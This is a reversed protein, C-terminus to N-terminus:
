LMRAHEAAPLAYQQYGNLPIGQIILQGFTALKKQRASSKTKHFPIGSEDQAKFWSPAPFASNVIAQLRQMCNQLSPFLHNSLEKAGTVRVSVGRSMSCSLGFQSHQSLSKGGSDVSARIQEKSHVNQIDHASVTSSPFHGFQPPSNTTRGRRGEFLSALLGGDVSRM